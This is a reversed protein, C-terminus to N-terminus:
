SEKVARALRAKQRAATNRHIIGKRAARDLLREAQLFAQARTPGVAARVKKVATKLASRQARNRQSRSRAQRLQKKASKTRPVAVDKDNPDRFHPALYLQSL